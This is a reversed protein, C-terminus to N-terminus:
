PFLRHSVKLAEADPEEDNAAASRGRTGLGRVWGMVAPKAVRQDSNGM